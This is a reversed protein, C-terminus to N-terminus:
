EMCIKSCGISQIHYVSTSAWIRSCSEHLNFVENSPRGISEYECMEDFILLIEWHQTLLLDVIKM